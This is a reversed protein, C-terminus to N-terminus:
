GKIEKLVGVAQHYYAEDVGHLRQIHILRPDDTFKRDDFCIWEYGPNEDLWRKIAYMRGAGRITSNVKQYDVDPFITRWSNHFLHEPIGWSVLDEKLNSNGIDNYNHTSNTVISLDNEMCLKVINKISDRNGGTRLYSVHPTNNFTLLDIVPGDIDLFLVAKKQM